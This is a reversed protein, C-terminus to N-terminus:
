GCRFLALLGLLLILCVGNFNYSDFMGVCSQGDDGLLFGSSGCSCLFSGNTNSCLDDCGGNMTSCENVDVSFIVM